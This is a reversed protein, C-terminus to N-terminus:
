VNKFFDIKTKLARFIKHNAGPFPYKELEAASIWHFDVPGNLRIKGKLSKCAFVHALIRFHTYAHNIQTLFDVVEIHLNVEEKLERICATAPTEHPLITGGPLEWLGGLLGDSKRKTILLRNNRILVGLSIQHLPVPKNPKRVPYKQPIGTRYAKCYEGIPCESCVPNKPTCLTAGLEMMAQNFDGAANNDFIQSLKKECKESFKPSNLPITIAFLRSIVRKVNGDLAPYPLNFAISSIAAAIYKGIGPLSKLKDYSRPFNGQFNDCIIKAARHLNRARAYYGMLEWSKLVEELPADALSKLDPFKKLFTPYYKLVTKVQTQQLMVESVWIRYPDDTERWPLKRLHHHFWELLM